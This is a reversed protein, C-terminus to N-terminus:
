FISFPFLISQFCIMLAIKFMKPNFDFKCIFFVFNVNKAEFFQCNELFNIMQKVNKMKKALCMKQMM